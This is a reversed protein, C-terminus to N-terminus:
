NNNSFLKFYKFRPAVNLPKQDLNEKNTEQLSNKNANKLEFAFKQINHTKANKRNKNANFSYSFERKQIFYEKLSIMKFRRTKSKEKEKSEKDLDVTLSLQCKDKYNQIDTEILEIEYELSEQKYSQEFLENQSKIM